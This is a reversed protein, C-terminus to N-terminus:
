SRRSRSHPPPPSPPADSSLDTLHPDSETEADIDSTITSLGLASNQASSKEWTENMLDDQGEGGLGEIYESECDYDSYRVESAEDSEKTHKLSYTPLQDLPVSTTINRFRVPPLSPPREPLSRIKDSSYEQTLDIINNKLLSEHYTYEKLPHNFNAIVYLWEPATALYELYVQEQYVRDNRRYIFTTEFPM